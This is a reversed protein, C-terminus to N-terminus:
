FLNHFLGEFPPNFKFWIHIRESSYGTDIRFVVAGRNKIRVGIGGAV